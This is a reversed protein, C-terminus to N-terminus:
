VILDTCHQLLVDIRTVVFKTLAARFNTDREHNTRCVSYEYVCRSCLINYSSSSIRGARPIVYIAHDVVKYWDALVGCVRCVYVM